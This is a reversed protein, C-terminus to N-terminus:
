TSVVPIIISDTKNGTRQNRSIVSRQSESDLGRRWDPVRLKRCSRICVAEIESHKEPIYQM